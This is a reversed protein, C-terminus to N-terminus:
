TTTESRPMRQPNTYSAAPNPYDGSDAVPPDPPDDISGEPIAAFYDAGDLRGSAVLRAGLTVDALSRRVAVAYWRVFDVQDFLPSRERAKASPRAPLKGLPSALVRVYQRYGTMWRRWSGPGPARGLALTVAADLLEPELAASDVDIYRFLAREGMFDRGLRREHFLVSQYKEVERHKASETAGSKQARPRALSNVLPHIARDVAAHSLYGLALALRSERRDGHAQRLLELGVRAPRGRHLLDGWPSGGPSLGAVYRLLEVPFREFYPLDVLIAGLRAERWWVSLLREVAPEAAARTDALASLHIAEAPM